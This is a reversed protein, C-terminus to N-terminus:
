IHNCKFDDKSRCVQYFTVSIWWVVSVTDCEWGCYDKCGNWWCTKSTFTLAHVENIYM